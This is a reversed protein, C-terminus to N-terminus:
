KIRGYGIRAQAIGDAAVAIRSACTITNNHLAAFDAPASLVNWDFTAIDWVLLNNYELAVKAAVWFTGFIGVEVEAGDKFQISADLEAVEDARYSLIGCVTLLHAATTPIAYGNNTADYYVADGPRPIRTAGSPVVMIGSDVSHPESPRALSGPFGLDPNVSYTAQVGM